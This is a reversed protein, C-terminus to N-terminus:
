VMCYSELYPFSSAQAPRRSPTLQRSLSGPFLSITIGKTTLETHLTCMHVIDSDEFLDVKENSCVVVVVDHNYTLRWFVYSLM